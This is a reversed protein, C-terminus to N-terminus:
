RMLTNPPRGVAQTGRLLVRGRELVAAKSPHKSEPYNEGPFPFVNGRNLNETAAAYHKRSGDPARDVVESTGLCSHCAGSSHGYHGSGLRRCQWAPDRLVEVKDHRQQDRGNDNIREAMGDPLTEDVGNRWTWNQEPHM